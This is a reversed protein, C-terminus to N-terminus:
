FRRVRLVDAAFRTFAIVGERMHLEDGYGWASARDALSRWPEGYEDGVWAAAAGKSVLEDSFERHLIRCLTLAVYAEHHADPLFDPDAIAPLREEFLDRRNAARVDVIRVPPILTAPEPGILAIGAERVAHLNILWENGYPPDPHWFTGGNVYPRRHPPPLVADLWSRPIYSGETRECWVPYQRFLAAHLEELGAREPPTVDRELIALYDIDSSGPDFGGYTLSGTLYLAILNDGLLGPLAASLDALLARVDPYSIADLASNAQVIPEM